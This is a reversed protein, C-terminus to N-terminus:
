GTPDDLLESALKIYRRGAAPAEKVATETLRKGFGRWNVIAASQGRCNGRNQSGELDLHLTRRRAGFMDTLMIAPATDARAVADLIDQRRNDM